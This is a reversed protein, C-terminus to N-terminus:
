LKFFCRKKGNVISIIFLKLNHLVENIVAHSQLANKFSLPQRVGTFCSGLLAIFIVVSQEIKQYNLAGISSVLLAKVNEKNVGELLEEKIKRITLFSTAIAFMVRSKFPAHSVLKKQKIWCSLSALYEEIVNERNIVSELLELVFPFLNVLVFSLDEIEQRSLVINIKELEQPSIVISFHQEDLLFNKYAYELSAFALNTIIKGDVLENILNNVMWKLPRSQSKLVTNSILEPNSKILLVLTRLHSEVERQLFETKPDRRLQELILAASNKKHLHCVISRLLVFLISQLTENNFAKSLTYLEQKNILDEVDNVCLLLENKRLFVNLFEDRLHRFGKQNFWAGETIASQITKRLFRIDQTSLSNLHFRIGAFVAPLLRVVVKVMGQRLVQDM